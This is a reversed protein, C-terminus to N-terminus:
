FRGQIDYPFAEPKSTFKSIINLQPFCYVNRRDNRGYKKDEAEILDATWIECMISTPGDSSSSSIINITVKKGSPTQFQM